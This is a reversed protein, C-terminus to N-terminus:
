KDEFHPPRKELFARMGEKQDALAFASWFERSRLRVILVNLRVASLVLTLEMQLDSPVKRASM